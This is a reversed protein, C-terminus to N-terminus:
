KSTPKDALLKKLLNDIDKANADGSGVRVMRVKGEQDIVVAQPIGTVGYYESMFLSHFAARNESM